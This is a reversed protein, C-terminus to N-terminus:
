KIHWLGDRILADMAKGKSAYGKAYALWIAMSEPSVNVSIPLRKAKGLKPRGARRKPKTKM